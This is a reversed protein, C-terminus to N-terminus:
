LVLISLQSKRLAIHINAISIKFFTISNLTPDAAAVCLENHWVSENASGSKWPCRNSLAHLGYYIRKFTVKSKNLRNTVM